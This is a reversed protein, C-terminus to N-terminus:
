AYKAPALLEDPHWYPPLSPHWFNILLVVRPSDSDNWVEHEWSDDFVLCEGESWTRTEEGVRIRCGPPVELGLHCTLRANTPGCHARLHTRGDIKSFIANGCGARAEALAKAGPIGDLLKATEPCLRRGSRSGPGLMVLESWAGRGDALRLEGHSVLPWSGVQAQAARLESRIAEFCRELPGCWPFAKADHWPGTALAPLFHEPRQLPHRWIGLGLDIAAQAAAREEYLLGATALHKVLSRHAAARGPELRLAARLAEAAARQLQRAKDACGGTEEVRRARRALLDGLAEHFRAEAPWRDLADLCAQEAAALDDLRWGACVLHWSCDAALAPPLPGGALAAGLEAAAAELAGIHLYLKGLMARLEARKPDEADCPGCVAARLQGLASLLAAPEPEGGECLTRYLDGAVEAAVTVPPTRASRSRSRDRGPHPQMKVGFRDSM